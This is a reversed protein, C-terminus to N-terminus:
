YDFKIRELERLYFMSKEMLENPNGLDIITNGQSQVKDIWAMNEEFMKTQVLTDDDIVGDPFHDTTERLETTAKKSVVGEGWFVDVRGAWGNAELVEKADLVGVQGQRKDMSRGILAIRGNTGAKIQKPQLKAPLKSFARHYPAYAKIAKPSRTFKTAAIYTESSAKLM